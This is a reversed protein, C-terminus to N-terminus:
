IMWMRVFTFILWGVIIGVFANTVMAAIMITKNIKNFQQIRMKSTLLISSVFGGFAIVSMIAMDQIRAKKVKWELMKEQDIDTGIGISCMEKQIQDMSKLDSAAMCFSEARPTEGHQQIYNCIAPISMYVTPATTQNEIVGCLTVASGGMIFTKDIWDVLEDITKPEKGTLDTIMAKNVVVSITNTEDSYLSGCIIEGLIMKSSIGTVLYEKEFTQYQFVAETEYVYVKDAVEQPIEGCSVHYMPITDKVPITVPVQDAQISIRGDKSSYSFDYNSTTTAAVEQLSTGDQPEAKAAEELRENNKQAVLAQDPTKACGTMTFGFVLTIALISVTKKKM